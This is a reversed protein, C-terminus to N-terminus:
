RKITPTSGLLNRRTEEWGAELKKMANRALRRKNVDRSYHRVMQESMEVIAAVEAETCGAELLMNVANKRLGHFVLGADRIRQMAAQKAPSALTPRGKANTSTMERQWATRYGAVTWPEGDERLHLRPHEVHTAALVERYESHIPIFTDAGTKQTKLAIANAAAIPRLMGIVDGSRQGTYLASYVPLHMGVRAHEFFLEFAWSPWPEHPDSEYEIKETAEAVNTPSYGRPIGFGILRSLVARFYIGSSPTSQYSDIAKQADATTLAAVRDNGWTQIITKLHRGYNDKTQDALGTFKTHAMYEEALAGFTKDVQNQATRDAKEAADVAGWFVSLGALAPDPLDHRRDGKGLWSWKWEGNLRAADLEACQRCRRWFEPDNTDRPLTLPPWERDTQRYRQYYYYLRGSAKKRVRM